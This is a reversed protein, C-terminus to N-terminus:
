YINIYWIDIHLNSIGTDIDNDAPAYTTKTDALYSIGTVNIPDVWQKSFYTTCFKFTLYYVINELM